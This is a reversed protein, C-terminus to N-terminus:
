EDKNEEMFDNMATTMAPRKDSVPVLTPKGQPKDIYAALLEDCRPKGLLKQMATVGRVSREYPDFVAHSVTNAVATEDTYRRNSRGEILKWGAWEKGNVAQQLAYEKIDSAWSVLGVIRALFEVVEEDRLLPPVKFEYRALNLNAEARARCDYKAKCFSCWEGCLFSGDGAFALDATPQLM